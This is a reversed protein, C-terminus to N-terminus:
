TQSFLSRGWEFFANFGSEPACKQLALPMPTRTGAEGGDTSSAGSTAPDSAGVGPTESIVSRAATGVAEAEEAAAKEAAAEATLEQLLLFRAELAEAMESRRAVVAAGEARLRAAKNSSSVPTGEARYTEESDDLYATAIVVAGLGLLPAYTGPELSGSSQARAAAEVTGGPAPAAERGVSQVSALQLRKDIGRRAEQTEEPRANSQSAPAEETRTPETAKADTAEGTAAAAQTVVAMPVASQWQVVPTAVGLVAAVVAALGGVLPGHAVPQQQKQLREKEAQKRARERASSIASSRLAAGFAVVFGSELVGATLSSREVGAFPTPPMSREMAESVASLSQEIAVERASVDAAEQELIRRAGKRLESRLKQSVTDREKGLTIAETELLGKLEKLQGNPAAATLAEASYKEHAEFVAQNQSMVAATHAPRIQPVAPLIFAFCTPCCSLVLVLCLGRTAMTRSSVFGM